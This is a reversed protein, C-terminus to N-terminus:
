QKHADVYTCIFKAMEPADCVFGVKQAAKLAEEGTMNNAVAQEMMAFTGARRGSSCHVFIPAPAEAMERRFHDVQEDSVVDMDVPLHKYIMDLEQVKDAEDSPSLTTNEEDEGRLNFITKFGLEKLHELEAATPQGGISINDNLKIQEMIREARKQLLAAYDM